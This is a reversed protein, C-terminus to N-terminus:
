NSYDLRYYRARGRMETIKEAYDEAQPNLEPHTQASLSQKPPQKSPPMKLSKQIRDWAQDRTVPGGGRRRKDAGVAVHTGNSEHRTVSPKIIADAHGCYGGPKLQMTHPAVARSASVVIQVDVLRSLASGVEACIKLGFSLGECDFTSDKSGRIFHVNEGDTSRNVEGGSDRKHYELLVQGGKMVYCTNRALFYKEKGLQADKLARIEKSSFDMRENRKQQRLAEERQALAEETAESGRQTKFTWAITGPFLIVEPFKKSIARLEKVLTNKQDETVFHESASKAFLYEPAAFVTVNHRDLPRATNFFAVAKGVRKRLLAIRESLPTADMTNALLREAASEGPDTYNIVMTPVQWLAMNIRYDAM